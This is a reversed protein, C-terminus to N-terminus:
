KTLPLPKVGFKSIDFSLEQTDFIQSRRSVPSRAVTAKPSLYQLKRNTEFDESDNSSFSDGKRSENTRDM